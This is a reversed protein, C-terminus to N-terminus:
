RLLAAFTVAAIAIWALWPHRRWPASASLGIQFPPSTLGAPSDVARAAGTGPVPAAEEEANGPAPPAAPTPPASAGARTPEPVGPAPITPPAAPPTAPTDAPGRAPSALAAAPSPRSAVRGSESASSLLRLAAATIEVRDRAPAGRATARGDSGPRPDAPAAIPTRGPTLAQASPAPGFRPKTAGLLPALARTKLLFTLLQM